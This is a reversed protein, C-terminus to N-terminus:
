ERCMAGAGLGMADEVAGHCFQAVEFGFSRFRFFGKGSVVFALFGGVFRCGLIGGRLALGIGRADGAVGV